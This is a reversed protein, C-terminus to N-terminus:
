QSTDPVLHGGGGASSKLTRPHMALDRAVLEQSAESAALQAYLIRTVQEAITPQMTTRFNAVGSQLERRRAADATPVPLDLWKAPFAAAHFEADFRVPM